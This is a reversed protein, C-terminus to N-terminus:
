VWLVNRSRPYAIHDWGYCITKCLELQYRSTFGNLSDTWSM